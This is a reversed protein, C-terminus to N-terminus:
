YGRSITFPSSLPPGPILLNDKPNLEQNASPESLTSTCFIKIGQRGLGTERNMLLYEVLIWVHAQRLILVDMSTKESYFIVRAIPKAYVM